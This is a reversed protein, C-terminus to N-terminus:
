LRNQSLRHRIKTNGRWHRQYSIWRSRFIQRAFSKRGRSGWVKINPFQEKVSQKIGDTRGHAPRRGGRIEVIVSGRFTFMYRVRTEARKAACLISEVRSCASRLVAMSAHLSLMGTSIMPRCWCPMSAWARTLADLSRLDMDKCIAVGFRTGEISRVVDEDGPKFRAEFGPVLHQKAYDAIL